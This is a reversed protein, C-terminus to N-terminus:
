TLKRRRNWLLYVPLGAITLALGCVARFPDRLWVAVVVWACIGIFVLTTIPHGPMRAEPERPDREPEAEPEREPEPEREAATAPALDRRRFVFLTAATLGMFVFDMSVVMRLIAEYEGSYAIAVALIGQLVIAVVPARTRESLRGVSEFFLGDQAMAFYVRPATLVSQSLFGLTSIAICGAIITAGREGLARMAVESAPALSVALHSLGLARSCAIAVLTYLAIVGLVGLVLARPLDRRPDKMEGAVFCATQWGGYCFLVPILAAGLGEGAPASGLALGAPASGGAAVTDAAAPHVAFGCVVLGALAVIKLVMLVSQLRNGAAVGLCNVLTLGAMVIAALTTEALRVPFLQEFYRAFAIACDAMGGTQIVVLLAWGYLFGVSPHLAERLYVYQGGALPRRAGLEAYVFAGILACVGGILWAGLMSPYSGTERAVIAPNLFIGAGVIGGMVVMTADFLGIRRALPM